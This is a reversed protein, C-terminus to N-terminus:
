AVLTEHADTAVPKEVEEGYPIALSALMDLAARRGAGM